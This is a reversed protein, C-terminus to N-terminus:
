FKVRAAVQYINLLGDKGATFLYRGNIDSKIFTVGEIHTSLRQYEGEKINKPFVHIRGADTGVVVGEHGMTSEFLAVRTPKRNNVFPVATTGGAEKKEVIVFRPNTERNEEGILFMNGDRDNAISSYHINGDPVGEDSNKQRNWTRVQGDEGCSILSNDRHTWSLDTCRNTHATYNRICELTYADFISIMFHTTKPKPYAAALFQGGQSFRLISVKKLPMERYEYPKKEMIYILKLCSALGLALYYGNPHFAMSYLPRDLEGDPNDPKSMFAFECKFDMYNWLRVFCDENSCTAVIPRQSCVDIFDIQGFHFGKYLFNFKVQMMKLRLETREENQDNENIPVMPVEGNIISAFNITAIHNNRFGIVVADEKASIDMSIVRIGARHPKWHSHLFVKNSSNLSEEEASSDFKKWFSFNGLESAVLAGQRYSRSAYGQLFVQHHGSRHGQQLLRRPHDPEFSSSTSTGYKQDKKGIVYLRGKDTGALLNDADLWDHDTFFQDMDLKSITNQGRMSSEHVRFIKLVGDGSVALTHTDGPNISVKDAPKELNTTIVHKSKKLDYFVVHPENEDTVCAL